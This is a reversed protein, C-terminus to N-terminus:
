HTLAEEDLLRVIIQSTRQCTRVAMSTQQTGTGSMSVM